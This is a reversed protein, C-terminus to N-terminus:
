IIAMADGYSYFRYGRAVAEQYAHMTLDYGAFAAVLMILTSRPLHFNTILRDVARFRYPPRIFINTDGSGVQLTGDPAAASELTRVATTGVAWTRAGATRAANVTAATAEDVSYWEEHMDHQAPDEVEVPKFTGAGVHLLVEARKVGRATLADLLRQTFHLGATPAAVSGPEQAYVTQYRERDAPEDPRDIYPPLPVHGHREIATEPTDDTILRVTRTGRVTVMAIEVDFGPAVHVRRGPKLKAGPSVMAEWENATLPKLLLVEARAGSDRTGLLRARLVRSRNLVLVDGAPILTELDAFVRHSITGTARDVVMLRAADRPEVPVSAIRDPPLHFDFASTPLSTM